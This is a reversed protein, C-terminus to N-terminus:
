HTGKSGLKDTLFYWLIKKFDKAIASTVFCGSNCRLCFNNAMRKRYDINRKDYYIDSVSKGYRCNGIKRQSLCYYVDGLSDLSFADLLFPCPTTRPNKEKYM